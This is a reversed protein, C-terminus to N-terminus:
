ITIGIDLPSCIDIAQTVGGTVIKSKINGKLALDGHDNSSISKTSKNDKEDARVSIGKSVCVSCHWDGEPVEMLPPSLCYLHVSNECSECCLLKGTNNCVFCYDSNLDRSSKKKQERLIEKVKGYESRAKFRGYYFKMCSGKSKGTIRSIKTFNKTSVILADHFIKIQEESWVDEDKPQNSYSEFSEKYVDIDKVKCMSFSIDAKAPDWLCEYSKPQNLDNKISGALPLLSVQFKDGISSQKKPYLKGRYKWTYLRMSQRTARRRKNRCEVMAEECKLAVLEKYKKLISDYDTSIKIFEIVNEIGRVIGKKPTGGNSATTVKIRYSEPPIFNIKSANQIGNSDTKSSTDFHGTKEWGMSVMFPWLTDQFADVNISNKKEQSLQEEGRKRKKRLKTTAENIDGKRSRTGCKPQLIPPCSGPAVILINTGKKVKQAFTVGFIRGDPWTVNVKDGPHVDRSLPLACWDEEKEPKITTITPKAVRQNTHTNRTPSSLM